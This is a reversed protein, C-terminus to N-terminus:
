GFIDEDISDDGSGADDGMDIPDFVSMVDVPGGGIRTDTKVLQIANLSFSVGKGGTQHNWAYATIHARVWCGGYIRKEARQIATDFDVEALEPDLIPKRAQDVVGPAYGSKVNIYFWGDEYGEIEKEDCPRLPNRTGSLKIAGGFKEEMAAVMAKKFPTLDTDPPLLLACQFKLDPNGKAVPKPRFLAPFAIRVPGTVVEKTKTAEPM